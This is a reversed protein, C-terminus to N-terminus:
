SIVSISTRIADTITTVNDASACIAAPSDAGSGDARDMAPCTM